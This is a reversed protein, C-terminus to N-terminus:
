IKCKKQEKRKLKRISLVKKIVKWKVQLWYWWDDSLLGLGNWRWRFNFIYLNFALESYFKNPPYRFLLFQSDNFHSLHSRSTLAGKCSCIANFWSVLKNPSMRSTNQAIELQFSLYSINWTLFLMQPLKLSGDNSVGTLKLNLHCISAAINIEIIVRM